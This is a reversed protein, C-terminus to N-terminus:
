SKLIIYTCHHVIYMYIYVWSPVNKSSLEVQEIVSYGCLYTFVHTGCTAIGCASHAQGTYEESQALLSQRDTNVSLRSDVSM